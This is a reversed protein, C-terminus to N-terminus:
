KISDFDLENISEETIQIDTISRSLRVLMADIERIQQNNLSPFRKRLRGKAGELEARVKVAHAEISSRMLQVPAVRGEVFDNRLKLTKTRERTLELEAEAREVMLEEISESSAKNRLHETYGSVSKALDYLNRDVKHIVGDKALHFFRRKEVGLIKRLSESSVQIDSIDVAKKSM